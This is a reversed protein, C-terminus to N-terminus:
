VLSGLFGIFVYLVFTLLVMVPHPFVIFFDAGLLEFCHIECHGAELFHYFYM